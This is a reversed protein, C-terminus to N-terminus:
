WPRLLLPVSSVAPPTSGLSPPWCGMFTLCLSLGSAFLSWGSCPGSFIPSRWCSFIKTSALLEPYISEHLVSQSDRLPAAVSILVLMRLLIADLVKCLAGM